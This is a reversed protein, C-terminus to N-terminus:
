LVFGFQEENLYQIINYSILLYMVGNVKKTNFAHRPSLVLLSLLLPPPFPLKRESMGLLASKKTANQVTGPIM